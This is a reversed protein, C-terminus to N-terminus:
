SPTAAFLSDPTSPGAPAVAEAVQVLRRYVSDTKVFALRVSWDLFVSLIAAIIELHALSEMSHLMREMWRALPPLPEMLRQTLPMRAMWRVLIQMQEM